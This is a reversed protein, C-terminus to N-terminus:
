AVMFGKSVETIRNKVTSKNDYKKASFRNKYIFFFLKKREMDLFGANKGRRRWLRFISLHRVESWTLWRRRGAERPLTSQM